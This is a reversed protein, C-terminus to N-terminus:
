RISYPAKTTDRWDYRKVRRFQRFRQFTNTNWKLKNAFAIRTSYRTRM